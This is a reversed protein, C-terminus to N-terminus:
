GFIKYFSLAVFDADVRSLDLSETGVFKAADLLVWWREQPPRRRMRWGEGTETSEEYGMESEVTNVKGSGSRSHGGGFEARRRHCRRHLRAPLGEGKVRGAIGLDPRLGTANCEAPFAFLSHVIGGDNDDGLRSSPDDDNSSGNADADADNSINEGGNGHGNEPNSSAAASGVDPRTGTGDWGDALVLEGNGRQGDSSACCCCCTRSGGSVSNGHQQGKEDFLSSCGRCEGACAVGELGLDLDLCQVDAGGERAYERIGLVSNHSRRAHVFRSAGAGGAGRRRRQWPFLEGVMKLAATAGSTFVVDWERPSAGFHQLM